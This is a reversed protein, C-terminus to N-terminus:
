AVYITDPASSLDYSTAGNITGDNSGGQDTITSASGSDNDGMRYWLLSGKTSWDVPKPNAGTTDVLAACDSDSLASNWVAFEDLKGYWDSGNPGTDKGIQNINFNGQSSFTCRSVGDIFITVTSGDDRFTFCHWVNRKIIGSAIATGGNTGNAGVNYIYTIGDVGSGGRRITLEQNDSSKGCLNGEFFSVASSNIMFWSAITKTGTLNITSTLDIYDGAGDFTLAYRNSYAGGGGGSPKAIGAFSPLIISM